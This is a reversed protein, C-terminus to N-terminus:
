GFLGEGMGTAIDEESMGCLEAYVDFNAEGLYGPSPLYPELNTGSWIAPFREFPRVGFVQHDFSHWFDRAALQPDNTLDHGDQVVGAPVGAAQLLEMAVHSPRTGIWEAIARDIVERNRIRGDVTENQPNAAVRSIWPGLVECLSQWEEDTRCTIAVEHQDGSRYVENPCLTEFPDVNGIPQAERGNAIYDTLAAGILYTGTEIQAIDIHQGLGTRRRSELAALIAAAADLGAAHDNLSFGPGVDQRGPPNSLHTLGCLAHITPAYTIMKAWPGEHGCGSMTVYVLRPNWEKVTDYGIGWRELVGASFNEVLVDSQEIIKRMLPLAQENKMNLSASRKSRNWVYFYPFDPSNVLTAREATKFQLIDAGLDGLIRCCFPGALVWTFDVVRVGSLPKNASAPGAHVQEAPTPGPVSGAAWESVVQEITSREVVPPEPAPAPTGHFTASPGPLRVSEFKQVPRFTGRFEYQPNAAIQAVTQVEGFSVHREQAGYFLEGSDKTLAWNRIAAMVRDMQAIAEELSMSALAKGEQDGESAMWEFLPAPSPTPCVLVAGTKAPTVIYAGLWHRSGQRIARKPLGFTPTLLDDFWYQFFMQEITSAVVEHLSLDIHQGHGTERSSYVGALGSIVAMFSGFHLNQRGWAGIAHDPTGSVSLVGGLAGAVLDSTQWNARPGTRGFPTLSVQVLRPNAGTLDAYDVGREALCGPPETDIILDAHQALARYADRGEDTGLDIDARRKGGDYWWDLLGGRAAVAPDRMAPGPTGHGIRVVSAGGEALLKTAFRGTDDTLDVVRLGELPGRAMHVDEEIGAAEDAAVGAVVRVRRAGTRNCRWPARVAEHRM